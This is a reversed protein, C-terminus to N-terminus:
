AITTQSVSAAIGLELSVTTGRRNSQIELVAGILRARERMSAMGRGVGTDDVIGVGQDRVSIRLRDAQWEAGILLSPSQAHKLANTIAEQVIRMVNLVVTPAVPPLDPLHATHWEVRIPLHALAPELRRRFMGLAVSLDACAEDLSDIMLRLDDLTSRLQQELANSDLVASQAQGILAVLQGGVGDHMDRMIRHREEALTRAQEAERRLAFEAELERSRESLAVALDGRAREAITLAHLIRFALAAFLLILLYLMGWHMTYSSFADGILEFVHLSDILGLTAVLAVAGAFWAPAPVMAHRRQQWWAVVLHLLVLLMVVRFIGELAFSLWDPLGAIHAIVLAVLAAAISVGIRQEGASAGHGLSRNSFKLLSWLALALAAHILMGWGILSLPKWAMAFNCIYLATGALTLLFWVHTSEDRRRVAIPVLFLAIAFAVALAAQAGRAGIWWSREAMPVLLAAPGFLITGIRSAEGDGSRLHILIESRNSLLLRGPVRVLEVRNASASGHDGSFERLMEGNVYVRADRLLSSIVIAGDGWVASRQESVIRLMQCSSRSSRPLQVPQWPAGPDACPRAEVNDLLWEDAGPQRNLLLLGIVVAFPLLWPLLHRWFTRMM